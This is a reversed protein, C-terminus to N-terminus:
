IKWEGDGKISGEAQNLPLIPPTIRRETLKKIRKNTNM